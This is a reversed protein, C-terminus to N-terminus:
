CIKVYKVPKTFWWVHNPPCWRAVFTLKRAGISWGDLLACVHTMLWTGMNWMVWGNPIHDIIAVILHHGLNGLWPVNVLGQCIRCRKAWFGKPTMTSVAPRRRPLEHNTQSRGRQIDQIKSCGLFYSTLFQGVNVYIQTVRQHVLMKGHFIM